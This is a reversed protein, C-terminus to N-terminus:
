RALGLTFTAFLSPRHMVTSTNQLFQLKIFENSTPRQLVSVSAGSSNDTYPEKVTLTFKHGKKFQTKKRRTNKKNSKRYAAM